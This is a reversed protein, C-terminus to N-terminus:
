KEKEGEERERKLHLQHHPPVSNRGEKAKRAKSANYGHICDVKLVDLIESRKKLSCTVLHLLHQPLLLSM